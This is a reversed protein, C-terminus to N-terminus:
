GQADAEAPDGEHQTDCYRCLLRKVDDPHYSTRGCVRCHIGPVDTAGQPGRGLDYTSKSSGGM